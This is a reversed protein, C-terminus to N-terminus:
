SMPISLTIGKPHMQKPCHGFDANTQNKAFMPVREEFVKSISVSFWWIDTLVDLDTGSFVFATMQDHVRRIVITVEEDKDEYGAL